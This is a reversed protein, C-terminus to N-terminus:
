GIKTVGGRQKAKKSQLKIYNYERHMQAPSAITKAYPQESIYRTANILRKVREVPTFSPMDEALYTARLLNHVAWRDRQVFKSPGFTRVWFNFCEDIDSRSSTASPVKTGEKKQITEKREKTHRYKGVVELGKKGVVSTGLYRGTGKERSTLRRVQETNWLEYNKNFSYETVLGRKGVVLLISKGVLKKIAEIVSQRNLNTLEQFQTLSIADSKKHWGYTKRLVVWLIKHENGSFHILALQEAIENAIDIHGNEAQPSAM